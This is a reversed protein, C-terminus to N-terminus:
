SLCHIIYQKSGTWTHQSTGILHLKYHIAFTRAEQLLEEADRTLKNTKLDSLMAILLVPALKM